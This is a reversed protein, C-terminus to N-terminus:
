STRSVQTSAVKELRASAAAAKKLRMAEDYIRQHIFMFFDIYSWDGPVPRDEM